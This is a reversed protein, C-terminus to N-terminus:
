PVREDPLLDVWSSRLFYQLDNVIIEDFYMKNHFGEQKKLVEKPIIMVNIAFFQKNLKLIIYPGVLFQDIM